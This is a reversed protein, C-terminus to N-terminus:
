LVDYFGDRLRMFLWRSGLAFVCSVALPICLEAISPWTAHFVVARLNEVPLTLPNFHYLFRVTEPVRDLPYLVPSLLLMGTVLLGVFEVIDRFYVSLASLSWGIGLGLPVLPLLVIPLALWSTSGAFGFWAALVLLVIIGMLLHFLADLVLAWTLLHMPFRTSKVYHAHGLVLTPAKGICDAVFLHLLLGSFLVVAYADKDGIQWRIALVEGFVLALLVVMLLPLVLAWAVGLISNRYRGGIRQRTLQRVLRAAARRPSEVDSDDSTAKSSGTPSPPTIGVWTM